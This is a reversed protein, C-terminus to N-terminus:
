DMVASEWILNDPLHFFPKANENDYTILIVNYNKELLSNCTRIIQREIGGAMGDLSSCIFAINKKKIM